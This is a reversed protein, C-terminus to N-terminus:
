KTVMGAAIALELIKDLWARQPTKDTIYETDHNTFWVRFKLGSYVRWDEHNLVIAVSPKCLWSVVRWALAMWKEDYLYNPAQLVTTDKQDIWLIIDDGDEGIGWISWDPMLNILQVTKQHDSMENINMTM